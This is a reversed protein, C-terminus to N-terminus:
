QLYKDVLPNGTKGGAIGITSSQGLLDFYTRM